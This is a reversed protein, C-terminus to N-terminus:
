FIHYLQIHLILAGKKETGDGGPIKTELCQGTVFVHSQLYKKLKGHLKEIHFQEIRLKEAKVRNVNPFPCNKTPPSPVKRYMQQMNVAGRAGSWENSAM